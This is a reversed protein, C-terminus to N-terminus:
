DYYDFPEGCSMCNPEHDTYMVGCCYRTSGVELCGDCIGDDGNVESAPVEEECFSCTVMEEDDTDTTYDTDADVNASSGFIKSFLGM